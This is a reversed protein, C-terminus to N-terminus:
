FGVSKCIMRWKQDAFALKSNGEKGGGKSGCFQNQWTLSQTTWYDRHLLDQNGIRGFYIYVSYSPQNSSPLVALPHYLIARNTSFTLVTGPLFHESFRSGAGLNSWWANLSMAACFGAFSSGHWVSGAFFRKFTGCQGGFQHRRFSSCHNLRRRRSSALHPRLNRSSLLIKLYTRMHQPAIRHWTLM